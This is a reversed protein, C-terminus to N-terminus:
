FLCMCGTNPAASKVIALVHFCGPHGDVSSSIFFSHYVYIISYSLWLFFSIIDNAAAHISNSTIMKLLDSSFVFIIHYWKYTSDLKLFHYQHVLRFPLFLSVSNSLLSTSVAPFPSPPVFQSLLVSTYVSGHAFYIALLFSSYLVPLEVGHEM